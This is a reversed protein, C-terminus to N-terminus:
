AMDMDESAPDQIKDSLMEAFLADYDGDDSFNAWHPSPPRAPQRRQPQSPLGAENMSAIMAELEAEEERALIEAMREDPDEDDDMNDDDDDYHPSPSLRSPHQTWEAADDFDHETLM